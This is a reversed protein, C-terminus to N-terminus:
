HMLMLFALYSAIVVIAIVIVCICILQTNHSMPPVTRELVAEKSTFMPQLQRQQQHQQATLAAYSLARNETMRRQQQTVLQDVIHRRQERRHELEDLIFIDDLEFDGHIPMRKYM